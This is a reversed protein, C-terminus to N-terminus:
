FYWNWAIITRM